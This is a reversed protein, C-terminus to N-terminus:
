PNSRPVVLNLMETEAGLSCSSAAGADGLGARGPAARSPYRGTPTSEAVPAVKNPWRLYLSSKSVGARAAVQDMMLRAYGAEALLEPTAARIAADV